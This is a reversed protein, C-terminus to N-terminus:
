LTDGEFDDEFLFPSTYRYMEYDEASKTIEGAEIAAARQEVEKLPEDLAPASNPDPTYGRLSPYIAEAGDLVSAAAKLVQAAAKDSPDFIQGSTIRIILDVCFPLDKDANGSGTWALERAGASVIRMADPVSIQGGWIIDWPVDPEKLLASRYRHGEESGGCLVRCFFTTIEPAPGIKKITSIFHKLESPALITVSDLAKLLVPRAREWLDDPVRQAFFRRLEGSSRAPYPFGYISPEDQDAVRSAVSDILGDSVFMPDLTGPIKNNISSLSALDGLFDGLLKRRDDDDYAARPDLVITRLGVDRYLEDLVPNPELRVIYSPRRDSEPIDQMMQMLKFWILRINIDRFSYGMYLVSRGLLDSRFKLDMPSEFDLRKYYASETLVLTSEHRLDGHYKIIQTDKTSIRAVDKPLAVVSYPLELTRYTRELLDDYNTTYIQPAGLNALEVHATSLAPNSNTGLVGREIVHRLPGIRRDSKIYLYEAIQLYDDNAFGRIANYDLDVSLENCLRSLLESWDPLGM